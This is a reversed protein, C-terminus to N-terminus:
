RFSKCQSGRVQVLQSILLFRYCCIFSPRQSLIFFLLKQYIFIFRAFISKQGPPFLAVRVSVVASIKSESVSFTIAGGVPVSPKLLTVIVCAGTSSLTLAVIVSFPVCVIVGLAPNPAINPTLTSTFTGELVSTALSM